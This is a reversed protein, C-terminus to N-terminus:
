FKAERIMEIREDNFSRSVDLVVQYLDAIHEREMQTQQLGAIIHIQRHIINCVEEAIRIESLRETNILVRDSNIIEDIKIKMQKDEKNIETVKFLVEVQVPKVKYEPKIDENFEKMIRTLYEKKDARIVEGNVNDNNDPAVLDYSYYGVNCLYEGFQNKLAWLKMNNELGKITKNDYKNNIHINNQCKTYM